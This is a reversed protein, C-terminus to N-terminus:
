EEQALEALIQIMEAADVKGDDDKAEEIKASAKEYFAIKEATTKGNWWAIKNEWINVIKEKLGMWLVLGYAAVTGGNDIAQSWDLNTLWTAAEILM